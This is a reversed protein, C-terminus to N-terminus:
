AAGIPRPRTKAFFGVGLAVIYRSDIIRRPPPAPCEATGGDRAWGAIFEEARPDLDRAHFPTPDMPEESNSRLRGFERLPAELLATMQAEPLFQPLRKGQKPLFLGKLPVKSVVSCHKSVM